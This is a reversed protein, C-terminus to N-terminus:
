CAHEMNGWLIPAIVGLMVDVADSVSKTKIADVLSSDKVSGVGAAKWLAAVCKSYAPHARKLVNLKATHQPANEDM